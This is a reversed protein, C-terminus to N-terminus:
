PSYSADSFYRHPDAIQEVNCAKIACRSCMAKVTVMCYFGFEIGVGSSHTAPAVFGCTSLCGFLIVTVYIHADTDLASCAVASTGRLPQSHLVCYKSWGGYCTGEYSM